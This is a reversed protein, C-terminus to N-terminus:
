EQHALQSFAIGSDADFHAVLEAARVTAERALRPAPQAFREFARGRASLKEAALLSGRLDGCAGGLKQSVVGGSRGTASGDGRPKALLGSRMSVRIRLGWSPAAAGTPSPSGVM